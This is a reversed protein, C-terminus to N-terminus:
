KKVGTQKAIWNSILTLAAPSMTEEIKAYESVTGKTATQFLHNLKPLTVTQVKKNGGAKLAKAIEPLNQKIAVQLDLEGNIALVPVKVQRLTTRPDYGMFFRFWPANVSKAQANLQAEVAKRQAAPTNALAKNVIEQLKKEAAAIDKETKLVTFIQEQIKRNDAIAAETAGEARAILAAQEYLLEDAPVGPAALLVLFSVDKSKVACMPAIMGGESHGVLGIKKANIEPRTKLSEVGALVDSAFDESTATSFRGGSKGVGRDDFRLVAIGNRTLHDSLVWFPHHGMLTENRDQPGSGSILIVAPHPGNTRPTTLTGALKINAAKNEFTIDETNYPYPPQPTQPRKPPALDAATARKFNLPFTAGGQTFKGTLENGSLTAEYSAGLAKMVFKLTQGELTITDMKLGNAGQDPSDMTGRWTGDDGPTFHLILKLKAAGVDLVGSWDGKLATADQAFTSLVLTLLILLTIFIQSKM